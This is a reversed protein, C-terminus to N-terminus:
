FVGDLVAIDRTLPRGCVSRGVFRAACVAANGKRQKALLTATQEVGLQELPQYTEMDMHKNPTTVEGATGGDSRSPQKRHRRAPM